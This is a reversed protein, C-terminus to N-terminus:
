IKCMLEIPEIPGSNVTVYSSLDEGDIIVKNKPLYKGTETVKYCDSHVTGLALQLSFPERHDILGEDCLFHNFFRAYYMHLIAVFLIFKSYAPIYLSM